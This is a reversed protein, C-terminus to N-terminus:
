GIGILLSLYAILASPALPSVTGNQPTTDYCTLVKYRNHNRIARQEYTM